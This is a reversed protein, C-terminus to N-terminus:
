SVNEKIQPMRDMLFDKNQKLFYIKKLMLLSKKIQSFRYM